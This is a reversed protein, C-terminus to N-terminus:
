DLPAPEEMKQAILLSRNRLNATNLHSECLSRLAIILFGSADFLGRSDTADVTEQSAFYAAKAQAFRNSLGTQHIEIAPRILTEILSTAARALTLREV